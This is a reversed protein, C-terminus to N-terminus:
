FDELFPAEKVNGWIKSWLLNFTKLAVRFRVVGVSCKNAISQGNKIM